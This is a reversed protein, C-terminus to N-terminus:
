GLRRVTLEYEQDDALGLSGAIAGYFNEPTGVYTIIVQTSKLHNPRAEALTLSPVLTITTADIASKRFRQVVISESGTVAM